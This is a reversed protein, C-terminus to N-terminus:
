SVTAMKTAGHFEQYVAFRKSTLTPGLQEHVWQQVDKVSVRSFSQKITKETITTLLAGFGALLSTFGGNSHQRELQKYLAFSSELIETSMPLREAPKLRGEAESVLDLLRQGLQRSAPYGLHADIAARLAAAAGQFLGQENIFKVGQNVVQQCACWNAVDDAFSRLWGLKEELREPMVWRRSAAEPHDLLWLMAAAWELTAGLNMFRAKPKQRPPTLYALETQQIAARTRGLRTQFEAFRPDRSLTAELFNAAKHKFDSLVVTDGRRDKLGAAGERLEVAGDCLVARPAGHRESLEAYVAAMDERKWRTGPRVLLPRVHEHQLTEGPAPM